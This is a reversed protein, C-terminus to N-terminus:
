VVRGLVGRSIIIRQIENAGEFIEMIKIDRYLREVKAKKTFGLGGHIQVAKRTVEIAAETSFCKAISAEMAHPMDADRLAAAKHVLGRAAQTAIAMNALYFQIVQFNVLEKGFQKRMKAYKVSEDFAAQAIGLAASAVVIRGGNLGKSAISMGDGEAGIINEDPVRVDEMVIDSIEQGRVGMTDETQGRTVGKAHMDMIFATMRREGTKAFLVAIDAFPANTIFRKTGNLIWDKGDKKASTKIGQLDSSADPETTAFCAVTESNMAPPLFKKRQDENGYRRIIDLALKGGAISGALAPCAKNLEEHAVVYSLFDTGLGGYKKPFEMGVLRQEGIKKYLERPFRGTRDVSEALPAFEKEAFEKAAERVKEHDKTLCYQM